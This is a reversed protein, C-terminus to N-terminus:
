NSDQFVLISVVIQLRSFGRLLEQFTIVGCGVDVLQRDTITIFELRDDTPLLTAYVLDIFSM